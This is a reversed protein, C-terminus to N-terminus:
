WRSGGGHGRSTGGRFGAGKGGGSGIPCDKSMHGFNGCNFCKKGGDGGGKGGVDRGRGGRSAAKGKGKGGGKSGWSNHCKSGGGGASGAPAAQGAPFVHPLMAVAHQGANAVLVDGSTAWRTSSQKTLLSIASSMILPEFFAGQCNGFRDCAECLDSRHPKREQGEDGGAPVDSFQWRLEEGFQQCAKCQQGLVREEEPDFRARVSLWQANCQQCRFTATVHCM